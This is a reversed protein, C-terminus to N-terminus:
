LTGDLELDLVYRGDRRAAKPLCLWTEGEPHSIIELGSSRLMAEVAARNPVWWNTQDNSYSKEIFYMQPWAPDAFIEKNWFQYNDAWPKVEDSGRVMTQFLLSGGVKKVVNDLAYLPYRLHYFVGMFIVFDFQGEIAAVDYVSRREFEIELGLTSAAFRAQALYREDVDIGLVRGAGRLKMQLSYFGGNCGIDLVTAGDLNEPLAPAIHRWKVNPFDGLFHNPATKVGYLDINHFWEGLEAVQQALRSIDVRGAGPEQVQPNQLQTSM